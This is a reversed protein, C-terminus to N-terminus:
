TMACAFYTVDAAKGKGGLEDWAMGRWKWRTWRAADISSGSMATRISSDDAGARACDDGLQLPLLRVTVTWIGPEIATGRSATVPVM